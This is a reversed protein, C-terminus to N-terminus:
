GVELGISSGAERLMPSIIGSISVYTTSAPASDKYEVSVEGAEVKKIEGGRELDPTMSGAETVERLAAEFVAQKIYDPIVDDDILNGELSLSEYIQVGQRPWELPQTAFHTRIGKFAPGYIRDIARTARIIAADGLPEEPQPSAPSTPRPTWGSNGMEEHYADCEARTVYSNAAPNSGTGDELIIAPM